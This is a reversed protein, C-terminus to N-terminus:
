SAAAASVAVAAKRVGGEPPVGEEIGHPAQVVEHRPIGEETSHGSTVNRQTANIPPPRRPLRPAGACGSAVLRPSHQRKVVAVINDPVAPPTRAGPSRRQRSLQEKDVELDLEEELSLPTVHEGPLPRLWGSSWVFGDITPPRAAREAALAETYPYFGTGFKHAAMEARRLVAMERELPTMYIEGAPGLSSLSAPPRM